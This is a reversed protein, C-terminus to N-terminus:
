FRVFRTERKRRARIRDIRVAVRRTPTYNYMIVTRPDYYM